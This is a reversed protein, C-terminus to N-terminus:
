VLSWACEDISFAARMAPIPRSNTRSIGTSLSPRM